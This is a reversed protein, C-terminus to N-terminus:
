TIKRLVEEVREMKGFSTVVSYPVGLEEFLEVIRREIEEQYSEDTTRLGDAKPPFMKKVLFVHTYPSNALHAKAAALLAPYNPLGRAYALNDVVCRDTIFGSEWAANERALTRRLIEEQFQARRPEDMNQALENWELMITRALEPLAALGPLRAALNRLLTSKGTGHAGALAIRPPTAM